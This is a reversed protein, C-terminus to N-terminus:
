KEVSNWQRHSSLEVTKRATVSKRRKGKSIWPASQPPTPPGMSSSAKLEVNEDSCWVSM